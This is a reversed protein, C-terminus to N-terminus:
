KVLGRALDANLSADSLRERSAAADECYPRLTESVLEFEFYGKPPRRLTLSCLRSTKLVQDGLQGNDSIFGDNKPISLSPNSISYVLGFDKERQLHWRCKFAPSKRSCLCNQPIRTSALPGSVPCSFM